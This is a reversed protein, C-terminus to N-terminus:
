SQTLSADQSLFSDLLSVLRRIWAVRGSLLPEAEVLTEILQPPADLANVRSFFKLRIACRYSLEHSVTERPGSAPQKENEDAAHSQYVGGRSALFM